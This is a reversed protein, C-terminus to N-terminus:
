ENDDEESLNRPVSSHLTKDFCKPHSYLGQTETPEKTWWFAIQISSELTLGQGCFCCIVNENEQM